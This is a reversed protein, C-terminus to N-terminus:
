GLGRHKMISALVIGVMLCPVYMAATVWNSLFFLLIISVLFFYPFLARLLNGYMKWEAQIVLYIPGLVTILIAWGNYVWFLNESM